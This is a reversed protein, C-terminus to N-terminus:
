SGSDTMVLLLWILWWHVTTGFTGSSGVAVVVIVGHITEVMCPISHNMQDQIIM